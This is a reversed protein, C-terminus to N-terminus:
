PPCSTRQRRLGSFRMFSVIRGGRKPYIHVRIDIALTTKQHFSPIIMEFGVKGRFGPPLFHFLVSFLISDWQPVRDDHLQNQECSDDNAHHSQCTDIGSGVLQYRVQQDGTDDAPDDTQQQADNDAQRQPLHGADYAKCGFKIEAGFTVFQTKGAAFIFDSHQRQFHLFYALSEARHKQLDVFCAALDVMAYGAQTSRDLLDVAHTHVIGGCRRFQGGTHFAGGVGDVADVRIHLGCLVLSIM